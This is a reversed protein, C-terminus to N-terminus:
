SMPSMICGSINCTNCQYPTKILEKGIGIIGSISKLPLMQAAENLSIGCFRDPLISFLHHQDTVPWGCYGPSYRSSTSEAHDQAFLEIKEQIKEATKETMVSAVVDAIYGKLPDDRIIRTSWKSAAEGITCVFIAISSAQKMSSTIIKKLQFDTNEIHLSTQKFSINDSICYGAKIDLMALMEILVEAIQQEIAPPIGTESYGIWKGVELGSLSLDTPDLSCETCDM